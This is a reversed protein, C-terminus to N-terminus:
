FEAAQKDGVKTTTELVAKVSECESLILEGLTESCCSNLFVIELSKQCKLFDVLRRNSIKRTGTAENHLYIQEADSHGFYHFFHIPNQAENFHDFLSEFTCESAHNIQASGKIAAVIKLREERLFELYGTLGQYKNASALLICKSKSM